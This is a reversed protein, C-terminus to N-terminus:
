RMLFVINTRIWYFKPGSSLIWVQDSATEELLDRVRAEVKEHNTGNEDVSALWREVLAANLHIRNAKLLLSLAVYGDEPGLVDIYDLLEQFSKESRNQATGEPTNNWRLVASSMSETNLRQSAM